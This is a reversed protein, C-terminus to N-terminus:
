PLVLNGAWQPLGPNSGADEQISTLNMEVAGGRSSRGLPNNIMNIKEPFWM